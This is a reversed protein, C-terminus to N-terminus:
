SFSCCDWDWWKLTKEMLGCGFLSILHNDLGQNAPCPTPTNSQSFIGLPAPTGWSFPVSFLQGGCHVRDWPLWLKKDQWNTLSKWLYYDIILLVGAVLLQFHSWFVVVCVVFIPRIQWFTMFQQWVIGGLLASESNESTQSSVDRWQM